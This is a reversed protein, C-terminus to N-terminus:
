TPLRRWRTLTCTCTACSPWTTTRPGCCCCWWCAGQLRADAANMESFEAQCHRRSAAEALEGGEPSPCVSAVHGDNLLHPLSHPLCTRGPFLSPMLLLLGASSCVVRHTSLAGSPRAPEGLLTRNLLREKYWPVSTLQVKHVNAAFSADQTLLLLIILLMYLHSPARGSATYLMHLLPLLLVELDSCVYGLRLSRLSGLDINPLMEAGMCQTSM